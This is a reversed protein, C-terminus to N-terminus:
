ADKDGRKRSIFHSVTELMWGGKRDLSFVFEEKTSLRLRISKFGNPFWEIVRDAYFPMLTKFIEYVEKHIM